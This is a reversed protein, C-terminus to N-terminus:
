SLRVGITSMIKRCLDALHGVPGTLNAMSGLRGLGFLGFLCALACGILLATLESIRSLALIALAALLLGIMLGVVARRWAFGIRRRALWFVLPLYGTYMIFFSLGTAEIGVLPLGFWVGLLFVMMALTETLMYTKGAGAALLVFGLPWSAIKLIDGMVQWRLVDSAM